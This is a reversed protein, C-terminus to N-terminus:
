VSTFVNGIQNRELVGGENRYVWLKEPSATDYWEVSHGVPIDALVPETTKASPYVFLGDNRIAIKADDSMGIEISDEFLNTIDKGIAIAGDKETKLNDGLLIAHNITYNQTWTGTDPLTFEKKIMFTNDDIYTVSYNGTYKTSTISIADGTILGHTASTVNIHPVVTGADVFATISGTANDGLDATSGITCNQGIIINFRNHLADPTKNLVIGFADYVNNGAGRVQNENGSVYNESGNCILKWGFTDNDFGEVLCDGGQVINGSGTVTSSWESVHNNNGIITCWYNKSINNNGVVTCGIGGLINQYGLNVGWKGQSWDDGWGELTKCRFGITVSEPAEAFFETQAELSWANDNKNEYPRLRDYLTQNEFTGTENGDWVHTFEFSDEIDTIV